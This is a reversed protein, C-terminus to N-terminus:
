KVVEDGVRYLSFGSFPLKRLWPVQSLTHDLAERKADDYRRDSIYIEGHYDSPVIIYKVSVDELTRRTKSDRLSAFLSASSTAGLLPQAEVAPHLSSNFAFRSQRPVWLTRFFEPQAVLFDKLAIYENPVSRRAFTGGLNGSVAQRHVFLWFLICTTALALGTITELRKGIYVLAIPILMSYSIATLVYFKTPDRFMVFGPFHEFFWVYIWGFPEGAGKALFVGILGLLSFLLINKDKRGFLLSSFALIPLVLFEPQLFYTKGFINEPWNPHLFSLAHPFDAFSFFKVSGVSTYASGMADIPNFRLVIMPVIWFANFGIAIALPLFYNRPINSKEYKFNSILYTVVGIMTIYAIRPDIMIQFGLIIGSFVASKIIFSTIVLPAVSYALAVGMQGGGTVMLIYTNTTYILGAFAAPWASSVDPFVRRWLLVSCGFSLVLFLGFWGIKYVVPWPLGFWQTGVVALFSEFAHLGRVPDIGGLGNSAWYVWVPPPFAKEKVTEAFYYPWDGGIIEPALFWGRYVVLVILFTILYPM